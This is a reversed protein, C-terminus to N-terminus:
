PPYFFAMCPEMQDPITFIRMQRRTLFPSAKVIPVEEEWVVLSYSWLKVLAVGSKFYDELSTPFLAFPIRLSTLSCASAWSSNRAVRIARRGM